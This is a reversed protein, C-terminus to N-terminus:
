EFCCHDARFPKRLKRSAKLRSALEEDTEEKEEKSDEDSNTEDEKSIIASM